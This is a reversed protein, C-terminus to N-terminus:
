ILVKDVLFKIVTAVGGGVSGIFLKTKLGEKEFATMRDEIKGIKTVVGERNTDTDDELYSRMKMNHKDQSNQYNSFDEALQYYKKNMEKLEKLTDSQQNIITKLIENEPM